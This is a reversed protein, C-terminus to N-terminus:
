AAAATITIRHLAVLEDKSLNAGIYGGALVFAVPLKRRRCWDFVLEERQQLVEAGLGGPHNDYPDMGANYLCLDFSVGELDQLRQKITPLYKADENVVDLTNHRIPTYSDFSSVSIDTHHVRKEHRLMEHTGGGCHADLDLILVSKCGDSLAAYTAAVLGNFTCFGAGQRYKAHHLGSSLSGSVGSTLAEKAAAVTGGTSACVARWLGPDWHFGQSSALSRPTGTQVAKVYDPDHVQSLEIASLLTPAVLEISSIPRERLSNAIWGSKRTTDFAQSAAIYDDSYFIKMDEVRNDPAKM